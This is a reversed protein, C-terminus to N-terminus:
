GDSTEKRISKTIRANIQWEIDDLDVGSPLKIRGEKMAYLQELPYARRVVGQGISRLVMRRAESLEDQDQAPEDEDPEEEEPEETFTKRKDSWVISRHETTISCHETDAQDASLPEPTQRTEYEDPSCGCSLPGTIKVMRGRKFRFGVLRHLSFVALSGCRCRCLYWPKFRVSCGAYEIVTWNKLKLGSLNPPNYNDYKTLGRSLTSKITM